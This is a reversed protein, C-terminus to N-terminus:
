GASHRGLYFYCKTKRSDRKKIINPTSIQKTSFFFKESASVVILILVAIIISIKIKM